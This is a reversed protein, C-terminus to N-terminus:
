TNRVMPTLWGAITRSIGCKSTKGANQSFKSLFFNDLIKVGKRALFVNKKRIELSVNDSKPRYLRITRGNDFGSPRHSDHVHIIM